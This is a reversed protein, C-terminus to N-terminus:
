RVGRKGIYMFELNKGTWDIDRAKVTGEIVEFGPKQSGFTTKTWREARSRDLFIWDGNNISGGPTARYITVESDPGTISRVQELEEPRSTEGAGYRLINEVANPDSWDIGRGTAKNNTAGTGQYDTSADFPKTKAM